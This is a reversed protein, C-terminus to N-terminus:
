FFHGCTVVGFNRSRGRAVRGQAACCYQTTEPSPFLPPNRHCIYPHFHAMLGRAQQGCRAGSARALLVLGSVVM